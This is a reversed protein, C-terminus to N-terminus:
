AEEKEEEEKHAFLEDLKCVKWECGCSVCKYKERFMNYTVFNDKDKKGCEPCIYERSEEYQELMVERKKAAKALEREHKVSTKTIVKRM